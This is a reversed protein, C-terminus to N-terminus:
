RTKVTPAMVRGRVPAAPKAQTIKPSVKVARGIAPPEPQPNFGTTTGPSMMRTSMSPRMKAASAGRLGAAPPEPQPNFGKTTGASVIGTKTRMVNAAGGRQGPPEPQPNFGQTTGPRLKGVGTMFKPPDPQPNFGQSSGPKLEGVGIRKQGAGSL